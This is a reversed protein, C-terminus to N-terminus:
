DDFKKLCKNYVNDSSYEMEKLFLEHDLTKSLLISSSFIWIAFVLIFRFLFKLKM